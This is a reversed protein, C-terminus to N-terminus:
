IYVLKLTRTIHAEVVVDEGTMAVGAGDAVVLVLLTLGVALPTGSVRRGVEAAGDADGLTFTLLTTKNHVWDATLTVIQM